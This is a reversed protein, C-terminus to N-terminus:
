LPSIIKKINKPLHIFAIKEKKNEEIFLVEIKRDNPNFNLAKVKKDNYEFTINQSAVNIISKSKAM